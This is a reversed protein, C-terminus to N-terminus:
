FILGWFWDIGGIIFNGVKGIYLGLLDLFYPFNFIDVIISLGVLAILFYQGYDRFFKTVPNSYRTFAEIVRFGDLPYIPLLNFLMLSINITVMLRFFEAFFGIFTAGDVWMLKFKLMLYFLGMSIFALILNTVVGAIAVTFIGTKQHKFNYPNIPVPKAYGFGVTMLMFFGILDFHAIPNLTLRGNLKATYDGNWLAVLGHAYEHLTLSIVVVLAVIIITAINFNSYIM